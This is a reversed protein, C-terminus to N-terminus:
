ALENNQEHPLQNTSCETNKMRTFNLIILLPNALHKASENNYGWVLPANKRQSKDPLSHTSRHIRCTKKCSKSVADQICQIGKAIWLHLCPHGFVEKPQKRISGRAGQSPARPERFGELVNEPAGLRGIYVIPIPINHSPIRHSPIESQNLFPALIKQNESDRIFFSGLDYKQSQIFYPVM